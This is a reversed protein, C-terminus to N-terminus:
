AAQEKETREAEIRAILRNLEDRAEILTPIQEIVHPRTSDKGFLRALEQADRLVGVALMEVMDASTPEYAFFPANM